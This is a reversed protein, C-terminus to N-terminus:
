AGLSNLIPRLFDKYKTRNAWNKIKDKLLDLNDNYKKMMWRMERRIDRDSYGEQFMEFMRQTEPAASRALYDEIEDVLEKYVIDDEMSSADPLSFVEHGGRDFGDGSSAAPADIPVGKYRELLNEHYGTPRMYNKMLNNFVMRFFNEFTKGQSKERDYLDFITKGDEVRGGLMLGIVHQIVDEHRSKDFVKRVVDALIMPKYRFRPNHPIDRKALESNIEKDLKDWFSAPIDQIYGAKFIQAMAYKLRTEYGGALIIVRAMKRLNQAEFSM